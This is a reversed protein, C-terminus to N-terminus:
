GRIREAALDEDHVTCRPPDLRAAWTMNEARTCRLTGPCRLVEHVGHGTAGNWPRFDPRPAPTTRYRGIGGPVGARRLEADVEALASAM